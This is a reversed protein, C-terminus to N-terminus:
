LKIIDHDPIICKDHERTMIYLTIPTPKHTNTTEM